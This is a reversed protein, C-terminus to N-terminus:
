EGAVMRPILAAAGESGDRLVRTDTFDKSDRMLAMFLLDMASAM